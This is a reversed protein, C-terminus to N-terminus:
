ADHIFYLVLTIVLSIAGTRTRDSDSEYIDFWGSFKGDNFYAELPIEVVGAFINISVLKEFVLQTLVSRTKIGFMYLCNIEMM